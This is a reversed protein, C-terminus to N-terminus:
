PGEIRYDATRFTELVDMVAMLGHQVNDVRIANDYVTTRLGGEVRDRQSVYYTDVADSFQLQMLNRIGRAIATRYANTRADDGVDMALRYAAILGELYVGDSSAHPPGFDARDPNYFRGAVDAAPADDWQQMELLWDNMEFVFDRLAPDHTIGWVKAYAMTHWPVFAPNPQERHWARYFEFSLMFRELLQPDLEDELTVAWLLLAEGPYFNQNDTRGAPVYFTEFSGDPQWLHDVMRSLALQQGAHPSPDPNRRLALAALAVAGLKVDGDPDAILGLGDEARYSLELNYAINDQIRQDLVGDEREEAIRLLAATAMWQRIMNNSQSEEGRSPFYEYVMRGNEALQQALWNAMGDALHRTSSQTVDVAEVLQNGRTLPTVSADDLDVLLQTAEFFEVADPAAHEVDFLGDAKLRDLVLEFSTNDAIMRTPAYHVLRGDRLRVSMGLIGRDLNEGASLPADVTRAGPGAVAVEASDVMARAPDDLLAGAAALAESLAEVPTGGEGWADGAREGDVRLAVYVLGRATSPLYPIAPLDASTADGRITGAVAQAFATSEEVSVRPTPATNADPPPANPKSVWWVALALLLMAAGAQAWLRPATSRSGRRM